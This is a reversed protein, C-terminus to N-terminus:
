ENFMVINTWINKSLYIFYKKSWSFFCIITLFSDIKGNSNKKKNTETQIVDIIILNLSAIINLFPSFISEYQKKRM